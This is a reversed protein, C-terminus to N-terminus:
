ESARYGEPQIQAQARSRRATAKQSIRRKLGVGVGQLRRTLCRQRSSDWMWGMQRWEPERRSTNVCGPMNM